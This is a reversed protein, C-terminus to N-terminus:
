FNNVRYYIIKYKQFDTLQTDVPRIQWQFLINGYHIYASNLLYKNQM